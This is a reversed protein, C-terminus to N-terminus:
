SQAAVSGEKAEQCGEHIFVDEMWLFSLLAFLSLAKM